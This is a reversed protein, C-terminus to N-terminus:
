CCSKYCPRGLRTVRIESAGADASAAAYLMGFSLNVATPIVASQPPLGRIMLDNFAGMAWTRPLALAARQMWQPEFELPWWCGGMTAMTMILITGLPLVADRTEGVSAVILGFGRCAFAIAASPLLLAAPYAGLSM